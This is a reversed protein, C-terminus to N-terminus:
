EKLRITGAVISCWFVHLVVEMHPYRHRVVHFREGVRIRIGLEEFIERELAQELTEGHDVHGGPLFYWCGDPSTASEDRARLFLIKRDREIAARVTMAPRRKYRRSSRTGQGPETSPVPSRREISTPPNGSLYTIRLLTFLSALM